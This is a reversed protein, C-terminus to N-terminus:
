RICRLMYDEILEVAETKRKTRATDIMAGNRYDIKRKNIEYKYFSIRYEGAPEGEPEFVLELSHGTRTNTCSLLPSGYFWEMTDESPDVSYFSNIDVMWGSPIRLPQLPTNTQM